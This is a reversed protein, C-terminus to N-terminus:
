RFVINCEALLAKIVESLVVGGRDSLLERHAGHRLIFRRLLFSAVDRATAASLAATEAYRTLHDVAVIIWHHERSTCPLPGYLGIGVRDFPRAPCPLPQFNSTTSRPPSKRRQCDTCSRVYKTVFTYMGRWYFRLRLRRYTKLVDGHACQADGHFSSCIHVRLHHRIVLLWKRGESSYNRRYLLQDRVSFHAAQRRLSHSAPYPSPGALFEVISAIWPDKRQEAAMDTIDPPPLTCEVSSVDEVDSPVPYRSLADTHKRGSRYVVRIDHEQLRLTWRGLRGSPDKLSSLWCLVHHDTM